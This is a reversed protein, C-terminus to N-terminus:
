NATKAYQKTTAELNILFTNQIVLCCQSPGSINREKGRLVKLSDVEEKLITFVRYISNDTM